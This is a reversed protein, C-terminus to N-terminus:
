CPPYSRPPFGFGPRWPMASGDAGAIVGQGARMILRSRGGAIGDLEGGTLDRIEAIPRSLSATVIKNM